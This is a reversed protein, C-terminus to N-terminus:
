KAERTAVANIAADAASHWAASPNKDDCQGHRYEAWVRDRIPKPVMYWHKRCMLMEPPVSAM